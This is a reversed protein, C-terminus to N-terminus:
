SKYKADAFSIARYEYGHARLGMRLVAWCKSDPRSSILLQSTRGCALAVSDSPRTNTM